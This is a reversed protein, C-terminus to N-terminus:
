GGKIAETLLDSVASAGARTGVSAVGKRLKRWARRSIPDREAEIRSDLLALLREYGEESPWEGLCRQGRGTLRLGIVFHSELGEVSGQILGSRDSHNAVLFYEDFLRRLARDVESLGLQLKDAIHSLQVLYRNGDVGLDAENEGVWELIPLCVRHWEGPRQKDPSMLPESM